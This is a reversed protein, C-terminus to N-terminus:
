RPGRNLLREIELLFEEEHEVVLTAELWYLPLPALLDDCGDCLNVVDKETTVLAAAGKAQFQASIHRLENPSYRHHDSFELWDVVRMGQRELTRRFSQPNGLGCFAAARDFPAQKVAFRRATRHEVWAEPELQARFVPASRNWRRVEREIACGLDSFQNRTIVVLDARALGAMPERLRGLPFVNGGGFPNLADLLVIDAQRALQRHQFGDDLLLVNVGFERELASGTSFRDRGIGVPALGSRVFLQPEDGTRDSPVTAGPALILEKEPSLRAYGRTLIGPKRGRQRLLGALRLVCPTKGTGGMTLNGVSIVPALLRKRARGGRWLAGWTWLRALVWLVPYWPLASRYRPLHSHYLESAVAVARATAGRRAEACALARRGMEQARSPDELLREVAMSLRTADGIEVFARAARFEDAIAHFNEMHPGAIVPKAFLAPELLNHGGRAALSGGMFVLDAIAFLGSLEGISDLLLVAPLELLDGPQLRSRRLYRIGAAELKQAAAEFREPRRPVLILLLGPRRAALEGFAALVAEDEDVDDEAAPPMTSAAIWVRQPRIRNVLARVPSDPPAPRPDFDYKFNGSVTVREPPAGLMLFRDRMADSQALICDAAPLVAQFFWRLRRYRPFARDSIRGNVIAVAAGTRKVERFLNPWIETEAIIVLSPRIARLTRRVAWVTDIPAYFVGHALGTLRERALAMGALTSTSVFVRTQPFEKRLARLFELCSLVEGVSVAHLWIAGPGTQRFSHSLFGFRQPLSRWYGRSAFGRALFYLLLPPM